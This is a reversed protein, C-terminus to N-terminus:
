LFYKTPYLFYSYAMFEFIGKKTNNLFLTPIINIKRITTPAKITCNEDNELLPFKFLSDLFYIWDNNWDVFGQINNKYVDCNTINKFNDGVDFRNNKMITYIEDKPISGYFDNSTKDLILSKETTQNANSNDLFKIQGSFIVEKNISYEFLGTGIQIM